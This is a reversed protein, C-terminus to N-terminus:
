TKEIFEDFFNAFFFKMARCLTHLDQILSEPNSGHVMLNYFFKILTQESDGELVASLLGSAIKSKLILFQANASCLIMQENQQWKEIRSGNRSRYNVKAAFLISVPEFAM